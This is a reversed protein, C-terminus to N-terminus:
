EYAPKLRAYFKGKASAIVKTFGTDEYRWIILAYKANKKHVEPHTM